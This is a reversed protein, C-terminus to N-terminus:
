RRDRRLTLTLTARPLPLRITVGEPHRELTVRARLRLHRAAFSLIKVLDLLAEFGM